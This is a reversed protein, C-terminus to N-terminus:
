SIIGSPAYMGFHITSNRKVTPLTSTIQRQRLIFSFM